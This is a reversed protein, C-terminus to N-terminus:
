EKKPWATMEVLRKLDKVWIKRGERAIIKNDEWEKLNRQLTDDSIGALSCIDAQKINILASDGTVDGEKSKERFIILAISLKQPSTGKSFLTEFNEQVRFAHGSVKHISMNFDWSKKLLDFFVSSPIFTILSPQLTVASDPYGEEELAAQYGILEGSGAIYLTQETVPLQKFKKVLGKHIYFIGKPIEDEKFLLEGKKYPKKGQSTILFDYDNESLNEIVSRTVFNWKDFAFINSLSM